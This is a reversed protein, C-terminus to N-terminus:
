DHGQISFPKLLEGVKFSRWYRSESRDVEKGTLRPFRAPQLRTFDM